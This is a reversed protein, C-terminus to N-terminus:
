WCASARPPGPDRPAARARRRRADLEAAGRRVGAGVPVHREGAPVRLHHHCDVAAALPSHEPPRGARRRLRLRCRELRRLRLACLGDGPGSRGPRRTLRRSWPRPHRHARIGRRHRRDRDAGPGQRGHAREADDQRGGGRAPQHGVPGRGVCDGVGRHRRSRLGWLRVGYDAFAYAMAAISGTLVICLQSWGFVFGVCRGYARTLYEYDGGSRPYTTALEAYCLAGLFSLVGGLLWVGLAQWPGSVNQFVLPPTTFIATGVVIGVIIGVTDWLGLRPAAHGSELEALEQAALPTLTAIKM